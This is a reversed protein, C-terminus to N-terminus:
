QTKAFERPKVFRVNTAGAFFGAPTGKPFSSEDVFYRIREEHLAHLRADEDSDLTHNYLLNLLLTLLCVNGETAIKTPWKCGAKMFNSHAYIVQSRRTVFVRCESPDETNKGVFNTAEEWEAEFGKIKELHCVVTHKGISEEFEGYAVLPTQYPVSASGVDCLSLSRWAANTIRDLEGSLFASHIKRFMERPSRMTIRHPNFSWGILSIAKRGLFEFLAENIRHQELEGSTDYRSSSEMEFVVAEVKAPVSTQRADGMRERAKLKALLDILRNTISDFSRERSFYIGHKLRLGYHINEEAYSDLYIPVVRHAESDERALHIATAIEERQYYAQNCNASALVLTAMSARQQTPLQLDWDDGHLLCESDLFVRAHPILFRHLIKAPEHDAGAHAIFFDWQYREAM